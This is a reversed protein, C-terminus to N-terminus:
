WAPLSNRILTESIACKRPVGGERKSGNEPSFRTKRGLSGLAKAPIKIRARAAHVEEGRHGRPTALQELNRTARLSVGFRVCFTKIACPSKNIDAFASSYLLM